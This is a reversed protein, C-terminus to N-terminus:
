YSSLARHSLTIARGSRTRITKSLFNVPTAQIEDNGDNSATEETQHDEEDSASDYESQQEHLEPQVMDTEIGDTSSDLPASEALIREGVPLEKQYMNLPLTGSKHKTNNQRVTLQRVAKGHEQAWQRMAVQDNKSMTQVPLQKMKPIDELALKNEPVPYYSQPHTYYYASWTTTRKLSEHMTNGFDRSYEILTCTPHKFHSVAHLNEVQVTLCVEPKIKFDPSLESFNTDLRELGKEVLVLSTATKSAITGEPGNTVSNSNRTSKVEDITSKFYSSVGKVMQHAEQLTHQERPQHKFHVSFARYFKGLNELFEVSGRITTVLKVTGIQGDTVFLSSGETCVGMPQGFAAHSGSGNKNSEEGTGAIVTVCGSTQLQKVQRSDQDTFVISGDPLPAVSHLNSCANSGNRLVVGNMVGEAMNFKSLGNSHAIFLCNNSLCMSQVLDCGDPYACLTTATGCLFHGNSHVTVSYVERSSDSSCALIDDSIKCIASPKIEKDLLVTEPNKGQRQHSQREEELHSELRAKLQKVTGTCSLMRKELEAVVSARDRLRSSRLKVKDELDVVRLSGSCHECLVAAGVGKLYCLTRVDPLVSKLVKVRVPNHLDAEVLRSNNKLPDFDIFSLKGHQGCAIAIPHPFMGAKNTESYRYKEPIMQHVVYGVDRLTNIVDDSSLRLLPDVAMRDKNQVDDARLFRRLSKRITPNSDDRLAQVVALCGREGGLIIFWNCFSCKLSKGVHVSDPFFVLYQLAPDISREEQMKSILEMAKKNGEECDTTLVLVACRVCQQGADYCRKCARLSPIHSPQKREACTDCVKGNQLCEECVSCCLDEPPLQVTHNDSPIRELCAKCVQLIKVQELFFDKM